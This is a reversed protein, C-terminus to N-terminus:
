PGAAVTSCVLGEADYLVVELASAAVGGSSASSAPSTATAAPLDDTSWLFRDGRVEGRLLGDAAAARAAQGALVRLRAGPDLVTGPAFECWLHSGEPDSAEAARVLLSWGDLSVAYGSRNLLTISGAALDASEMVVDGTDLVPSDALGTNSGAEAMVKALGSPLAPQETFELEEQPRAPAAPESSPAGAAGPTEAPASQSRLQPPPEALRPPALRALVYGTGALALGLCWLTLASAAARAALRPFLGAGRGGRRAASRWYRVLWALLATVALALLVLVLETRNM